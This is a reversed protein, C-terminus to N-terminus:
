DRLVHGADVYHTYTSSRSINDATILLNDYNDKVPVIPNKRHVQVNSHPHTARMSQEIQEYVLKIAHPAPSQTLDNIALYDKLALKSIPEIYMKM